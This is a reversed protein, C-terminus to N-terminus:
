NRCKGNAIPKHGTRPKTNEFPVKAVFLHEVSSWASEHITTLFQLAQLVRLSICVNQMQFEFRRLLFSCLIQMVKVYILVTCHIFSQVELTFICKIQSALLYVPDMETQLRSCMFACLGELRRGSLEREVARWAPPVTSHIRRVGQVVQSALMSVVCLRSKRWGNFPFSHRFQKLVM